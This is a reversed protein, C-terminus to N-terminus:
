NQSPDQNKRAEALAQWMRLTETSPAQQASPSVQSAIAHQSLRAHYM